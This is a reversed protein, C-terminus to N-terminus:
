RHALIHMCNESRSRKYLCYLVYMYQFDKSGVRWSWKENTVCGHLGLFTKRLMSRASNALMDFRGKMTWCRRWWREGDFQRASSSRILFDCVGIFCGKKSCWITNFSVKSPVMFVFIRKIGTLYGPIGKSVDTCHFIIKPAKQVCRFSSLLESYISLSRRVVGSAMIISQAQPPDRADICLRHARPRWKALVAMHQHGRRHNTRQSPVTAMPSMGTQIWWDCQSIRLYAPNIHCVLQWTTEQLPAHRMEELKKHMHHPSPSWRKEKLSQFPDTSYQWHQMFVINEGSHWLAQYLFSLLQM